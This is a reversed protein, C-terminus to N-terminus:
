EAVESIAVLRCAQDNLAGGDGLDTTRAGIVANACRGTKLHGGKPVIAVDRRQRPDHRVRVVMSSVRTELRGLAGDALGSAADPHVTCSAPGDPLRPWQTSQSRETALGLLVLPFEPDGELPAPPTHILNVRGSPTPFRRDAYLVPEVQPNKRPLAELPGAEPRLLRAKWQRASGDLLGPLGLRPALAQLIELDTKVGPPPPVVPVVEGLWHHGYAGVIDDDELLTTTPLVLHALRATDTMFPDVVVV